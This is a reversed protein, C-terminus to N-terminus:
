RLPHFWEPERTEDTIIRWSEGMERFAEFPIPEYGIELHPTSIVEGRRFRSSWAADLIGTTLLTRELSYPAKRHRFHHQIAHALAKFLNRNRWPGPNFTTARPMREGELRCGFNWRTPNTGIRVVVARLGDRYEVLIGHPEVPRRSEDVGLRRIISRLTQRNDQIEAMMAAELVDVSWLGDVAARWLQDEDLYRVRQIGTEHGRRFEVISQLAELGHFGLSEIPGGVVVAADTISSGPPIELPPRREALPLSSGAMLPIEMSRATDYIERAWDWRFSLQKDNFVPVVRNSRRFVQVCEDWFMKRPFQRRGRADTPYDGHEGISLVADVALSDGGLCLADSIRSYIRIGFQDAVQRAVDGSPYQDVYASVVSMDPDITRGNFLYPQLFNELIVHAQSRQTFATMIVAVKLRGSGSDGSALPRVPEDARLRFPEPGLAMGSFVGANTLIFQRRSLM